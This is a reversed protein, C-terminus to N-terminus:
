ARFGPNTTQKGAAMGLALLGFSQAGAIFGFPLAWTTALVKFGQNDLIYVTAKGQLDKLKNEQLFNRSYDCM